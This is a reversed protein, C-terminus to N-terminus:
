LLYLPSRRSTQSTSSQSEGAITLFPNPQPDRFAWPTRPTGGKWKYKSCDLELRSIQAQRGNLVKALWAEARDQRVERKPTWLVTQMEMLCCQRWAKNVVFCVAIEDVELYGCIQATLDRPLDTLMKSDVEGAAYCTDNRFIYADSLMLGEYSPHLFSARSHSSEMVAFIAYVDKFTVEGGWPTSVAYSAVYKSGLKCLLEHVLSVTEKAAIRDDM